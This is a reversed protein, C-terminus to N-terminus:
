TPGTKTNVQKDRCEEPGRTRRRQARHKVQKQQDRKQQNQRPAFPAHLFVTTGEGQCRQNEAAVTHQRREPPPGRIKIKEELLPKKKGEPQAPHVPQEVMPRNFKLPKIQDNDTDTYHACQTGDEERECIFMIG